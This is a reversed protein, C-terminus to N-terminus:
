TGAGSSTISASDKDLRVSQAKRLLDAESKLGAAVDRMLYPALVEALAPHLPLRGIHGGVTQHVSKGGSETFSHLTDCYISYGNFSREVTFKAVGPELDVFSRVYEVVPMKGKMKGKGTALFANVDVETFTTMAPRPSSMLSNLETSILRASAENAKPPVDVPPKAALILCAAVAGLAVSKASERVFQAAGKGGPNTMRKLRQRAKEPDERRVEEDKPLVSRDLKSGCNHCYVREPENKYGCEKCPLTPLPLPAAM